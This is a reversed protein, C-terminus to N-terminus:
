GGLRFHLCSVGSKSYGVSIRDASCEFDHNYECANVKCAGVGTLNNHEHTHTANQFFTDCGPHVGDGITIARANCTEDLNYACESVKCESVVSMTFTMKM